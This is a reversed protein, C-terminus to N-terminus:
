LPLRRWPSILASVGLPLESAAAGVAERNEYWHGVLLLIAMRVPTPCGTGAVWRVRVSNITEMTSPWSSVPVIWGDREGADVEYDEAPVLEEDGEDDTRWVGTVSVVPGVPLKIAGSPFRDLLLDYSQPMIARGLVGNAGDLHATAAAVLATIASDEASHTVRLHEKAEALTVAPTSPPVVLKTM